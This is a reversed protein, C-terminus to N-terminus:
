CHLKEHVAGSSLFRPSQEQSGPRIWPHYPPFEALTPFNLTLGLGPWGPTSTEPKELYQARVKTGVLAARTVGGM